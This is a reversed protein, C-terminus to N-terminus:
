KQQGRELTRIRVEHDQQTASQAALQNVVVAMNTNLTNISQKVQAMESIALDIQRAVMWGAASM